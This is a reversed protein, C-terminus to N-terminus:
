CSHQNGYCGRGQALANKSLENGIFVCVVDISILLFNNLLQFPHQYYSRASCSGPLPSHPTKLVAGSISIELTIEASFVTKGISPFRVSSDGDDLEEIDPKTCLM